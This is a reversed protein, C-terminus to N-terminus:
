VCAHMLPNVDILDLLPGMAWVDYSVDWPPVPMLPVYMARLAGDIGVWSGFAVHERALERVDEAVGPKADAHGM